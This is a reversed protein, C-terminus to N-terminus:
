GSAPLRKVTYIGTDQIEYRPYPYSIIKCNRDSVISIDEGGKKMSCKPYADGARIRLPYRYLARIYDEPIYGHCGRTSLAHPCLLVLPLTLVLLLAHLTSRHLRNSKPMSLVAAFPCPRQAAEGCSSPRPPPLFIPLPVSAPRPPPPPPPPADVQRLLRGVPVPRMSKVSSADSQCRAPLGTDDDRHSRVQPIVPPETLAVYLAACRELFGAIFRRLQDTVVRTWAKCRPM